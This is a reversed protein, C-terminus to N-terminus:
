CSVSAFVFFNSFFSSLFFRFFYLLFPFIFILSLYFVFVVFFIWNKWNGIRRLTWNKMTKKKKNVESENRRYKKGNRYWLLFFISLYLFAAVFVAGILLSPFILPFFRFFDKKFFCKKSRRELNSDTKKERERKCRTREGGYIERKRRKAVVIKGGFVFNM